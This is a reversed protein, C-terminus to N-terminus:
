TPCNRACRELAQAGSTTPMIEFGANRLMMDVIQLNKMVDDEILVRAKAGPDRLNNSM